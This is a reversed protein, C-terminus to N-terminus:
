SPLPANRVAEPQEKRRGAPMSNVIIFTTQDNLLRCRAQYLREM